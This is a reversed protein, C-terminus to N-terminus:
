GSWSEPPWFCRTAMARASAMFGFSMRNSSGVEASSGSSTEPTSSVMRESASRPMVRITTLWSIFKARFSALVMCKTHSPMTMSDPAGSSIKPLGFDSRSVLKMRVTLLWQRHAVPPRTRAQRQVADPTLPGRRRAVFRRNRSLPSFCTAALDGIGALGQFTLPEAGCAVGLRTMEALGRTMITAVTNAGFQLGWAAGAAIAIVNKLAGGLEVGVIDPCTYVRFAPGSLAHQWARATEPSASGVVAAAPLGRAIEHALNPGSVAAILESPWGEAELVESMRAGSDLEIGKAASLVPIDRPLGSARVSARVHQAPAAVVRGELEPGEYPVKHIAVRQGLRLEPLRELGRRADVAAAETSTRTLVAVDNGSRELLGALTIGWSTAGLVGYRAMEAPQRATAM